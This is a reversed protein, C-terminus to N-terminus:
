RKTNENSEKEGDPKEGRSEKIAAIIEDRVEDIHDNTILFM